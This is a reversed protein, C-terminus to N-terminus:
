PADERADGRCCAPRPAQPGSGSCALLVGHCISVLLYSLLPVALAVVPPNGFPAGGAEAELASAAWGRGAPGDAVGAGVLGAGGSPRAVRTKARRSLGSPVEPACPLVLALAGTPLGFRAAFGAHAHPASGSRCRAVARGALGAQRLFALGASDSVVLRLIGSELVAAFRHRDLALGGADGALPALVGAALRVGARPAPAPRRDVSSGGALGAADRSPLRLPLDVMGPSRGPQAHFAGARRVVATRPACRTGYGFGLATGCFSFILRGAPPVPGPFRGPATRVAIRRALSRRTACRTGPSGILPGIM